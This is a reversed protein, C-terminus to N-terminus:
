IDPDAKCPSFEMERLTEAFWDHWRAGSTRLGYLAREILLLHGELVGFEPGAKFCVKEQTYAELYASSVDGVMVQLNNLEAATLAIRMSRLSVVGSYTGEISPDTLHGGAVLRAKHRLDHKVAFVFHVIINKFGEIFPIKGKDIFTNYENLSDIEAQMADTWKTNGNKKDLEYAEKVNRPIQTGFQFIPGKSTKNISLNMQNVMQEFKPKNKVIHKLQKWGSIDLLNNDKAYTALCVPDDKIMIDLPEYTESGDEWQVLVNYSSGKYDPHNQKLPGQHDKISTFTWKQEAADIVAEHQQEIIDSLTNYTIIEDFNGEGIEILFKIKQHNEADDDQIKRSVKACYDKGNDLKRIFTMVLLEEPSFKPLKLESPDIHLGAIDTSSMIPKNIGSYKEGGDPTLNDHLVAAEARLNPNNPDLASRLESRAVVKHTVSDLVLFTLADGQHEAIGVIHGIRENSTSPFHQQTAKFYVPEYWRFALLASIDPQQGTAVEIPTLRKLTDNSIRNHVYVIYNVCLLWLQSPTNTRDMVQNCSKKIEQIRREAFNQHQHHPECKFDKIAYMRLIDQVARGIQNKANDSFLANPAGYHRIFDELTGSMDDGNKMPYVATLLSTCGCFLQLCTTGGHGMIGDDLAPVDFFFTDTAVTENLRSVNAAPFRSKFHKQLPLRSDMRAFQTTHGITHRLRNFDHQKTTVTHKNDTYQVIDGYDNLSNSHYAAVTDDNNSVLLDTPKLENDLIQPDWPMDSTFIVHPYSEIEHDTPPTMDIFPLGNRISIPIVYGEPTTISQKGQLQHPTDDIMIGFHKLQNVSHVTKGNGYHAYQHFLGIIPGKHTEILAAVTCIPLDHVSMDTIGSVNATNLTKHLVRVDAGSM